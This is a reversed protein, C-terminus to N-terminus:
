RVNLAVVFKLKLQFAFRNISQHNIIFAQDSDKVGDGLGFTPCIEGVNVPSLLNYPNFPTGLMEPIAFRQVIGALVRPSGDIDFISTVLGSRTCEQITKFMPLRVCPQIPLTNPQERNWRDRDRDEM